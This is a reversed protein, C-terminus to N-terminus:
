KSVTGMAGAKKIKETKLQKLSEYSVPRHLEVTKNIPVIQGSAARKAAETSIAREQVRRYAYERLDGNDEEWDDSSSSEGDDV